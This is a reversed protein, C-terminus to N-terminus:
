SVDKWRRRNKILGVYGPAVGYKHGLEVYTSIIDARIRRVTEPTLKSLKGRRVNEARTVAELHQPNVCSRIGCLHDLDMGDPIKEKRCEYIVRHALKGGLKGYGSRDIRGQWVWCRTMYGRDEKAYTAQEAQVNTTTPRALGSANLSNERKSVPELHDPIVCTKVSCTHHLILGKPIPGVYKEYFHRHALETGTHGYGHAGMYGQWVWCPTSHGREQVEYRAEDSIRRHHGRVFRQPKGKVTGYRSDTKKAIATIAGCGCSCRGEGNVDGTTALGDRM